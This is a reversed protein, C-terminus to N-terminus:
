TPIDIYEKRYIVMGCLVPAYIIKCAYALVIDNKWSKEDKSAGVEFIPIQESKQYWHGM